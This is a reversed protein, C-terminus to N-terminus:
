ELLNDILQMNSTIITSANEYSLYLKNLKSVEKEPLLIVKNRFRNSNYSDYYIIAVNPSLTMLICNLKNDNTQYIVPCDSTVFESENSVLFSVSMRKLLNKIQQAIGDDTEPNFLSMKQALEVLPKATGFGLEIMVQNVEAVNNEVM